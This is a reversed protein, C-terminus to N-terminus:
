FTLFTITESLLIIYHFIEEIIYVYFNTKTSNWQFDFYLTHFKSSAFLYFSRLLTVNHISKCLLYADKFSSRSMFMWIWVTIDHFYCGLRVAPWQVCNLETQLQLFIRICVLWWERWWVWDTYTGQSAARASVETPSNKDLCDSASFLRGKVNHTVPILCLRLQASVKLLSWSDQNLILPSASSVTLPWGSTMALWRPPQTVVLLAFTFM